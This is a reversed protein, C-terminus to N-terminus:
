KRAYQKELEEVEKLHLELTNRLQIYRACLMPDRVLRRKYNFMSIYLNIVVLSHLLIQKYERTTELDTLVPM